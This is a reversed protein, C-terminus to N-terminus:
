FFVAGKFLFIAVPYEWIGSSTVDVNQCFLGGPVAQGFLASRLWARAPSMSGACYCCTGVVDIRNINSRILASTEQRVTVRRGFLM